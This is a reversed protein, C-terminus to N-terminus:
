AEYELARAKARPDKLRRHPRLFGRLRREWQRRSNREHWRELESDGEVLPMICTQIPLRDAWSRQMHHYARTYSDDLTRVPSSNHVVPGDFVVVGLGRSIARQAIDTAYLHYGPLEDDFRLGSSTRLVIVLEDISEVPVTGGVRFDLEGGLGQSWVRGHCARSADIGFVGLVAADPAEELAAGLQQEWSRPLYVDQHVLVAIDADISELAENYARSASAYGEQRVVSVDERRALESRQLTTRMMEDDNVCAIIAM